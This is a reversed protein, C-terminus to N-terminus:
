IGSIMHSNWSDIFRQMGIASTKVTINSVCFQTVPCSMDLIGNECMRLLKISLQSQQKCSAM